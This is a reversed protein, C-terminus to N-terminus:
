YSRISLSSFFVCILFEGSRLSDVFSDRQREGDERKGKGEVVELQEVRSSKGGPVYLDPPSRHEAVDAGNGSGRPGNGTADDFVGQGRVDDIDSRM